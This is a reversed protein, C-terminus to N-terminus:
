WLQMFLPELEDIIMLDINLIAERFKKILDSPLYGNYGYTREVFRETTNTDEGVNRDRSYSNNSINKVSSTGSSEDVDLTHTHGNTISDNEIKRANTLYTEEDVGTLSGQPTESYLDTQKTKGVEGVDQLGRSNSTTTTENVGSNASLSKDGIVEDTKRNSAGVTSRETKMDVSLFPNLDEINAKYLQNFYPMIENMKRDLRLKWLGVTEEGIERTYYHKLIKTELVARYEEDFIPYDFNFIKQRANSIITGIDNYGKSEDLGCLHECIYRIETTYKSM